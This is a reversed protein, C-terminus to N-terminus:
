ARGAGIFRAQTAENQTAFSLVKMHVHIHTHVHPRPLANSFSANSMSLISISIEDMLASTHEKKLNMGKYKQFMM